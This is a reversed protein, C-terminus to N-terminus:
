YSDEICTELFGAQGYLLAALVEQEFRIKRLISFDFSKAMNLFADANVKLGFNKALLQFLVAEYDNNTYKLLQNIM